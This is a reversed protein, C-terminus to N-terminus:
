AASWWSVFGTSWLTLTCIVELAADVPNAALGIALAIVAAVGALTMVTATTYYRTARFLKALPYFHLGVIIAIAPMLYAPLDHSVRLNAVINLAIIEAAFIAFFIWRTRRQSPSVDDSLSRMHRSHRMLRVAAVLLSATILMILIYAVIAPGIAATSIAASAWFGGFIACALIDPATLSM